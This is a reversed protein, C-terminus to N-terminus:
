RPYKEEIRNAVLLCLFILTGFLLMPWWHGVAVSGVLGCVTFFGALKAFAGPMPSDTPKRPMSRVEAASRGLEAAAPAVALYV